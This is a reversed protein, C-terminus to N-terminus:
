HHHSGITTLHNEKQVKLALEQIKLKLPNLTLEQLNEMKEQETM